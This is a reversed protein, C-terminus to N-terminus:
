WEYLSRVDRAGCSLSESSGTTGRSGPQICLRAGYRDLGLVACCGAATRGWCTQLSRGPKGAVRKLSFAGRGTSGAASPPAPPVHGARRRSGADPVRPRDAARRVPRRARPKAQCRPPTPPAGAAPWEPLRAQLIGHVSFVPLSYDMPDCLTLCGLLKFPLRVRAMPVSRLTNSGPAGSVAPGPPTM